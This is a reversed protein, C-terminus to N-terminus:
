IESRRHLLCIVLLFTKLIVTAHCRVREEDEEDLGCEAEVDAPRLAVIAPPIDFGRDLGLICAYRKAIQCLM